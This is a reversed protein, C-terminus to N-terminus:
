GVGYIETDELLDPYTAAIFSPLWDVINKAKSFQFLGFNPDFFMALSKTAIAMAHGGDKGDVCFYYFGPSNVAQAAASEVKAKKFAYWKKGRMKQSLISMGFKNMLARESGAGVVYSGQAISLQFQSPFESTDTVIDGEVAKSLWFCSMTACVGDAKKSMTGTVKNYKSGVTPANNQIASTDMLLTPTIGKYTYPM